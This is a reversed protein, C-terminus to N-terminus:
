AIVGLTLAWPLMDPLCRRLITMENDGAGGFLLGAPAARLSLM